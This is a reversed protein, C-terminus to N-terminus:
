REKSLKQRQRQILPHSNLLPNLAGEPDMNEAELRGTRFFDELVEMECPKLEKVLGSLFTGVAEYIGAPPKARLLNKLYSDIAAKRITGEIDMEHLKLGNMMSEIVLCKRLANRDFDSRAIM